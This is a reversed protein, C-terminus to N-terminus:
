GKLMGSVNGSFPCMLGVHSLKGPLSHTKKWDPGSFINANASPLCSLAPPPPIRLNQPTVIISCNIRFMPTDNSHNLDESSKLGSDGPCYSSKRKLPYIARFSANLEISSFRKIMRNCEKKGNHVAITCPSFTPKICDVNKVQTTGFPPKWRHARFSVFPLSKHTQSPAYEAWLFTSKGLNVTSM